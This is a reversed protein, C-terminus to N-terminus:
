FTDNLEPNIKSAGLEKHLKPFSFIAQIVYKSAADSGTPKMRLEIKRHGGIFFVEDISNYKRDLSGQPALVATGYTSNMNMVREMEGIFSVGKKISSIIDVEGMNSTTMVPVYGNKVFVVLANAFVEAKNGIYMLTVIVLQDDDFGFICDWNEQIFKLEPDILMDESHIELPKGVAERVQAKSMGFYFDRFLLSQADEGGVAAGCLLVFALLIRM